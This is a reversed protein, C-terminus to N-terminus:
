HIIIFSMMSITGNNEIVFTLQSSPKTKKYIQKKTGSKYGWTSYRAKYVDNTISLLEPIRISRSVKNKGM